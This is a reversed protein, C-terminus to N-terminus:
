YACRRRMLALGGIGLLAVSGPEPVHVRIMQPNPTIDIPNASAFLLADNFQQETLGPPLLNGVNWLTGNINPVTAPDIVVADAPTAPFPSLINLFETSPPVPSQNPLFHNLNGPLLQNSPSVLRVARLPMFPDITDITLNGNNENYILKFPLAKAPVASVAALTFVLVHIRM